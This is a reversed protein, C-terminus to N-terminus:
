YSKINQNEYKKQLNIWTKSNINTIEELIKAKELDLPIDGNLLKETEKYSLNLIESLEKKTIGLEEICECIYHGPSFCNKRNM